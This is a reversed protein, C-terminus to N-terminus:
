TIVIQLSDPLQKLPNHIQYIIIICTLWVKYFRDCYKEDPYTQVGYSEPCGRQAVSLTALALVIAISLQYRLGLM